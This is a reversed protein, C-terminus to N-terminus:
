ELPTRIRHCGPEIVCFHNRLDLTAHIKLFISLEKHAAEITNPEIRLLIVGYHDYRHIFVLAGFGKDRILLIRQNEKAYTLILEDSAKSLGVDKCCLVDYKLGRLFDITIQYIDQDALFKM